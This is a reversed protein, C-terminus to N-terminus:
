AHSVGKPQLDELHCRKAVAELPATCRCDACYVYLQTAGQILRVEGCKPHWASWDQGCPIANEKKYM